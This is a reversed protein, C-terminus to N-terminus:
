VMNTRLKARYVGYNAAFLAATYALMYWIFKVNHVASLYYSPPFIFKIVRPLEMNFFVPCIVIMSITLVPVLAGLLRISGCLQALLMCFGTCLLVYLAMILLERWVSSFIGSAFLSVFVVAAVDFIACLYYGLMVSFRKGRAFWAFRGEKSDQMYFLAIAFGSIVVFVALLGRVPATIYNMDEADSADESQDAYSFRFLNDGEANIAEYYVTLEEDTLTKLEIVNKEIYNKYLTQSCYPYLASYLRERSLQLLVTDEREVVRVFSYRRNRNKVFDEIKEELEAPFIWAADADVSEVLACAEDPSESKVFRILASSGAIENVIETALADANDQKALAITVMGSEGASAAHLALVLCPVLLLLAIFGPKKLFRKNFLAFRTFAKKIKNM